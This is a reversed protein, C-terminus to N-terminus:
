TVGGGGQPSPDSTGSKIHPITIEGRVSVRRNGLTKSIIYPKPSHKRHFHNKLAHSSKMRISSPLCFSDEELSPSRVAIHLPCYLPCWPSGRRNVPSQLHNTPIANGQYLVQRANSSSQAGMVAQCSSFLTTSKQLRLMHSTSVPPDSTLFCGNSCM